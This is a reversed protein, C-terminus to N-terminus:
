RAVRCGGRWVALWTSFRRYCDCLPEDSPGADERNSGTSVDDVRGDGVADFNPGHRVACWAIVSGVALVWVGVIGVDWFSGMIVMVYAHRRHIGWLSVYIAGIMTGAGFVGGMLGFGAPGIDLVDQAYVPMLAFIAVGFLNQAIVLITLWLIPPTDRAYRLGEMFESIFSARKDPADSDAREPERVRFLLMLGLANGGVVLWFVTHTGSAAIVLGVIVPGFMEGTTQAVSLIGTAKALRDARVIDAILAYFAPGYLAAGIGGLVSVALMHWAVLLETSILIATAGSSAAILSGAAIMLNRRGFRDSIVGGALAFFLIPIARVGAVLGVWLQSQTLEFIVWSNATGRMFIGLDFTAQSIILARFQADALVGVAKPKFRM